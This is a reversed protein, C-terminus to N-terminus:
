KSNFYSYFAYYFEFILRSFFVALLSIFAIRFNMNEYQFMEPAAAIWSVVSGALAGQVITFFFSYLEEFHSKGIDDAVSGILASKLANLNAPRSYRKFALLFAGILILLWFTTSFGM